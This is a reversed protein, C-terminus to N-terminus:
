AQWITVQDSPLNERYALSGNENRVLHLFTQNKYSLKVSKVDLDDYFMKGYISKVTHLDEASAVYFGHKNAKKGFFTLEIKVVIDKKM